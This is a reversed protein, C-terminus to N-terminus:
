AVLRRWVRPGSRAILLLGAGACVLIAGIQLLQIFWSVGTFPLDEAVVGFDADLYTDGVILPVIDVV